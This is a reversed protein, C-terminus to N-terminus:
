PVIRALFRYFGNGPLPASDTVTISNASREFTIGPAAFDSSGDFRYVDTFSGPSLASSRQLVWQTPSIAAANLGFSLVAHGSEDLTHLTLNRSNHCDSVAPNTGLAYEIGDSLGDHDSDQNWLSILNTLNANAPAANYEAAGIDPTDVIAFSRQDTTFSSSGAADIAPSGLQPPMTLTLGGYNGLPFLLPDGSTLNTGSSIVSTTSSTINAIVAATNQAVISNILTLSGGDIGIGGSSGSSSSTGASNNCVTSQNVTSGGGSNIGGGSTSAFNNTVTCQNITLVPWGFVPFSEIGGGFLSSNSHITCRNLTLAGNSEIGGGGPYNGLLAQCNAVTCDSMTLTGRNYVGGGTNFPYALNPAAGDQIILTRLHVTQNASIEFVRSAHNGSLTISAPLASADLILSKDLLIQGSTFTITQGSLDTAFTITDGSIADSVAQRLSGSGSDLTNSVQLTTAPLIGVALASLALTLFLRSIPKM